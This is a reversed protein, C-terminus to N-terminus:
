TPRSAIGTESRPAVRARRPTRATSVTGPAEADDSAAASRGGNSEPVDTVGLLRLLSATPVLLRRGLRITPLQANAAARYASRRSIGLIAAAEDIRMTAGLSALLAPASMGGADQLNRVTSEDTATVTPASTRM